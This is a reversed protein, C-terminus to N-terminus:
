IRHHPNSILIDFDPMHFRSIVQSPLHVMGIGPSLIEVKLSKMKKVCIDQTAHLFNTM